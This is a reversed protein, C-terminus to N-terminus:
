SACCVDSPFGVGGLLSREDGIDLVGGRRLAALAEPSYDSFSRRRHSLRRRSRRFRNLHRRCRSLHHTCRTRGSCPRNARRRRSVKKAEKLFFTFSTFSSCLTYNTIFADEEAVKPEESLFLAQTSLPSGYCRFLTAGCGRARLVFLPM